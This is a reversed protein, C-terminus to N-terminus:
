LPCAPQRRPPQSARTYLKVLEKENAWSGGRVAKDAGDALRRSNDSPNREPNWSTFLYAVPSYWDSCWEWVNGSTDRLGYGNPSSSGVPRPGTIGREFFVEDVPKFGLPYAGGVIGGRAAWEWESETPLRAEYGSLFGPLQTSFWRCFAEAADWSVGTVPLDDTGTPFQEGTWAELYTETALGQDILNRINDKRWQPVAQVFVRFLRNPVETESMLFGEIKVPHPLQAALNKEEASGQLLVGAPIGHFTLGSLRYVPVFSPGSQAKLTKLQDQYTLAFKKTFDQYWSTKVFRKTLNEPLVLALWFPFNQSKEYLQAIKEAIDLLSEATLIRHNAALSTFATVLAPLQMSSTVFYKSKDLFDYLQDQAEVDGAYGAAATEVLIEPIQPNTAFDKLASQILSKPDQLKLMLEWARRPRVFLTGFVPGKFRDNLSRSEFFPKSVSVEREGAPVLVECPTSGAYKGDVTVMAGPPFTTVRLFTGHDRLGKYFLLFFLLVLLLISYLITLYVGPRMGLFPKLHVEEQNQPTEPPLGPRRKRM